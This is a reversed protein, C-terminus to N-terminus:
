AGRTPMGPDTPSRHPPETMCVLRCALPRPRSSGVQEGDRQQPTPSSARADAMSARPGSLQGTRRLHDLPRPRAPSRSVM